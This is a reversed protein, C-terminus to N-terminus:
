CMEYVEDIDGLYLKVIGYIMRVGNFFKYNDGYFDLYIKLM